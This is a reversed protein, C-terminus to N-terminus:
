VGGLVTIVVIRSRKIVLAVIAGPDGDIDHGHVECHYHGTSEKTMKKIEGGHLIKMVDHVTYGRLGMQDKAHSTFVISGEELVDVIINHLDDEHLNSDM